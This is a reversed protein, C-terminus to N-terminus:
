RADRHVPRYWRSLSCSQPSDIETCDCPSISPPKRPSPTTPWCEILCCSAVKSSSASRILLSVTGAGFSVIHHHTLYITSSATSCSVALLERVRIQRPDESVVCPVHRDTRCRGHHDNGLSDQRLDAHRLLIFAPVLPFALLQCVDLRAAADRAIWDVSLPVNM